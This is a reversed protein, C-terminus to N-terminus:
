FPRSGSLIAASTLSAEPLAAPRSSLDSARRTRSALRRRNARPRPESWPELVETALRHIGHSVFAIELV